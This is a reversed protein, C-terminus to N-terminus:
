LLEDLKENYEKELGYPIKSPPRVGVKLLKEMHGEKILITAEADLFEGKEDNFVEPYTDCILKGHAEGMEKTIEGKPLSPIYRREPLAPVGADSTRTAPYLQVPTGKLPTPPRAVRGARAQGGGNVSSSGGSM